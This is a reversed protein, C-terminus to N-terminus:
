HGATECNRSYRRLIPTVRRVLEVCKAYDQPSIQVEVSNKNEVNHTHEVNQTHEVNHTHEINQSMGIQVASYSVGGSNAVEALLDQKVYVNKLRGRTTMRGNESKKITYLSSKYQGLIQDLPTQDEPLINTGPHIEIYAEHLCVGGRMLDITACAGLVLTAAGALVLLQPRTKM